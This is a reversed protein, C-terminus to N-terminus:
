PRLHQMIKRTVARQQAAGKTAVFITDDGALTGVVDALKLNDIALAVAPAKGISTKIVILHEGATDFDLFDTVTSDGSRIQPLCYIGKVKAIGLENLDRSISAQNAHIGIGSLEALLDHQNAIRKMRILDTLKQHRENKRM